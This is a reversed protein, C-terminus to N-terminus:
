KKNQKFSGSPLMPGQKPAKGKAKAKANMTKRKVDANKTKEKRAMQQPDQTVGNFKEKQWSDIGSAFKTGTLSDILSAVEGTFWDGLGNEEFTVGVPMESSIHAWAELAAPDYDCSETALTMLDYESVSPFREIWINYCAKLTTQESLNTFYAGKAHYPIAFTKMLSVNPDQAPSVFWGAFATASNTPFVHTSDNFPSFAGLPQPSKPANTLNSQRCVLYCGDKAEWSKSGPIQTAEAVTSPNFPAEIFSGSGYSAPLSTSGDRLNFTFKDHPVECPLEFCTVSGNKYLTNTTNQVEFGMGLVRSKGEFISEPPVLRSVQQTPTTTVDLTALNSGSLAKSIVLGGLPKSTAYPLVPKTLTNAYMHMDMRDQHVATLFNSTSLLCDWTAGAALTTPKAIDVALKICQVISKGPVGDPYGNISLPKDHFPDIAAMLWHKGEQSMGVRKAYANLRQEARTVKQEMHASVILDLRRRFSVSFFQLFTLRRNITERGSFIYSSDGFKPSSYTLEDMQYHILDRDIDPNKAVYWELYKSVYPFLSTFSLLMSIQYIKQYEDERSLPKRTVILMKSLSTTLKGERPLPVYLESDPDWKASSGLFEMELTGDHYYGFRTNPTHTFVKSASAKITMGYRAYVQTEIEQYRDLPLFMKESFGKIADDSYVACNMNEIIDIYTPFSGYIAFWIHIALDFLIIIHLISNDTATNNQGSSNSGDLQIITGDPLVRVPNETYFRVHNILQQIKRFYAECHTKLHLFRHRLNYVAHLKAHIDYGSIDSTSILSFPEFQAIIRNFGGYQKSYGYKIWNKPDISGMKINANQNDYLVKQKFLFEKPVIETFRIKKRALDEPSLFEDKCTIVQLPINDCDWRYKEFTTSQIYESTHPTGTMKGLLGSASNGKFEFVGTAEKIPATIYNLHKCAFEYALKSIEDEPYVMPTFTKDLRIKVNEDTPVVEKWTAHKRIEKAVEPMEAQFQKFIECPAEIATKALPNHNVPQQLKLKGIYTSYPRSWVQTDSM